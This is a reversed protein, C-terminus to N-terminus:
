RSKTSNINISLLSKCRKTNTEEDVCLYWLGIDSITSHSANLEKLHTCTAGVSDFAENDIITGQLNIRVLNPFNKFFNTYFTPQISKSYAFDLSKLKECREGILQTQIHRSSRTQM